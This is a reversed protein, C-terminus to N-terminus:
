VGRDDGQWNTPRQYDMFIRAPKCGQRDSRARLGSAIDPQNVAECVERLSAHEVSSRDDKGFKLQYGRYTLAQM